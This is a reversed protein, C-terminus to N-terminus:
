RLLLGSDVLITVSLKGCAGECTVRCSIVVAVNVSGGDGFAFAAAVIVNM